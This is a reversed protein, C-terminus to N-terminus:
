DVLFEDTKTVMLGELIEAETATVICTTHPHHNEALFKILPKVIEEFKEQNTM